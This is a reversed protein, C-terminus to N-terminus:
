TMMGAAFSCERHASSSWMCCQAL